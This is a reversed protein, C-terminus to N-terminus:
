IWETGATLRRELNTQEHKRQLYATRLRILLNYTEIEDIELQQLEARHPWLAIYRQAEILKKEIKEIRQRQRRRKHGLKSRESQLIRAKERKEEREHAANAWERLKAERKKREKTRAECEARLYPSYLHDSGLSASGVYGHLNLRAELDPIGYVRYPPEDYSRM